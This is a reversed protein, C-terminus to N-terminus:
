SEVIALGKRELIELTFALVTATLQLFRCLTDTVETQGTIDRIDGVLQGENGGVM